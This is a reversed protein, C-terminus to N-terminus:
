LLAAVLNLARQSVALFQAADRELAAAHAGPSPIRPATQHASVVGELVQPAHREGVLRM